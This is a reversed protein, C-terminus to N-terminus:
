SGEVYFVEWSGALRKERAEFEAIRSEARSRAEVGTYGFESGRTWWEGERYFIACWAYPKGRYGWFRQWRAPVREEEVQVVEIVWRPNKKTM